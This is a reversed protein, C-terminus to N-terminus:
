DWKEQKKRRREEKETKLFDDYVVKAKGPPDGNMKIAQLKSKNWTRTFANVNKEIGNRKLYQHIEQIKGNQLPQNYFDLIYYSM